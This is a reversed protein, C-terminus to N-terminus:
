KKQILGTLKTVAKAKPQLTRITNRASDYANWARQASRGEARLRRISPLYVLGLKNNIEDVKDKAAKTRGIVVPKFCKQMLKASRKATAIHDKAMNYKKRDLNKLSHPLLPEVQKLTRYLKVREAKFVKVSCTLMIHNSLQARSTTQTPRVQSSIPSTLMCLCLTLCTIATHKM